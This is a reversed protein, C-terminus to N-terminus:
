FDHISLDGTFILDDVYLCIILIKDEQNVKTYLTPESPSRNFGVSILYEDIRRYWVRSAQKLGYLVKRLKYVKDRHKDIEYGSPQRVYVEEELYGNLFAFKVDMQHMIWRNQAAIALVM